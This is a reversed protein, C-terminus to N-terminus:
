QLKEILESKWSLRVIQWFGLGLCLLVVPVTFVTPWFLPRFRTMGALHLGPSVASTRHRARPSASSRMDHYANGSSVGSAAPSPIAPRDAGGQAPAVDSGCRGPGAAGM